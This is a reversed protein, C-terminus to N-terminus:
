REFSFEPRGGSGGGAAPPPSSVPPPSPSQPVAVPVPVAEPAPPASVPEEVPPASVPAPDSSRAHRHHAHGPLPRSRKRAVRGPSHAPAVEARRHIRVPRSPRVGADAKVVPTKTSPPAPSGGGSGGSGGLVLVGLLVLLGGGLGVAAFVRRAGIRSAGRSRRLAAPATPAAAFPSQASPASEEDSFRDSISDADFAEEGLVFVDNANRGM